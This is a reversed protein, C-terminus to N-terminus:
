VRACERIAREVMQDLPPLRNVRSGSFTRSVARQLWEHRKEDYGLAERIARKEAPDLDVLLRVPGPSTEARERLREVEEQTRHAFLDDRDSLGGEVERDLERAAAAPIAIVDRVM